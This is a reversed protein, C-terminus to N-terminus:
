KLKELESELQKRREEKKNEVYRGAKRQNEELIEDIHQQLKEENGDDFLELPITCITYNQQSDWTGKYNLRLQGNEAKFHILHYDGECMYRYPLSWTLISFVKDLTSTYGGRAHLYSSYLNTAILKTHYKIYIAELKKNLTESNKKTKNLLATNENQQKLLEHINTQM